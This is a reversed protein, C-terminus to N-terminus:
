FCYMAKLAMKIREVDKAKLKGIQTKLRKKDIARLQFLLAISTKDLCNEEDGEIVVTHNYKKAQEQSTLPIIQAIPLEHFDIVIVAPRNGTQEHGASFPFDVIYIDGMNM